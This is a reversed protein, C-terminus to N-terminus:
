RNAKHMMEMLSAEALSLGSREAVEASSLGLKFLQAAQNYARFDEDDEDAGSTDSTTSNQERLRKEMALLRQGMGISGSTALALDRSIKRQLKQVEEMQSKVRAFALFALLLALLSLLLSLLHGWEGLLQLM